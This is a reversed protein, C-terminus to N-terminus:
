PRIAAALQDSLRALARNLAGVRADITTDAAPEDISALGTREADGQRVRWQARLVATGERTLDFRVFDVGATIAPQRDVPWPYVVTERGDMRTSLNIALMRSVMVSLREAWRATPLYDIEQESVRTIIGTQDLYDPMTIPGLGLTPPTVTAPRGEPPAVPSLVFFRTPDTQTKLCGATAALLLLALFRRTM